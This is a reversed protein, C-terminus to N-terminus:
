QACADEHDYDSNFHAVPVPSRAAFVPVAILLASPLRLLATLPDDLGHVLITSFRRPRAGSAITSSSSRYESSPPSLTRSSATCPWSRDWGSM